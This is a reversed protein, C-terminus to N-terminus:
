DSAAVSRATALSVTSACASSDGDRAQHSRTGATRSLGRATKKASRSSSSSSTAARESGSRAIMQSAPIAATRAVGVAAVEEVVGLVVREARSRPREDRAPDVARGPVEQEAEGHVEAHAQQALRPSKRRARCGTPKASTGSAGRGARSTAAGDRARRRPCTGRRRRPRPRPRPPTRSASCSPAAAHDSASSTTPTRTTWPQLQSRLRADSTAATARSAAITPTNQSSRLRRGRVAGLEDDPMSYTHQEEPFRRERVDHPTRPSRPASRRRRAGRLAQRLARTRGHYLGLLDHWVLVQGDCEAGPASASRRSRSSARSARPSPRRCPRSCSRSAAQPRSRARTTRAARDGEGATRGQAKFGGLM